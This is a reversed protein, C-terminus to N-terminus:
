SCFCIPKDDHGIPRYVPSKPSVAPMIGFDVTRWQSNGTLQWLLRAAYFEARLSHVLPSFIEWLCFASKAPNPPKLGIGKLVSLAMLSALLMQIGSTWAPRGRLLPQGLKSHLESCTVLSLIKPVWGPPYFALEQACGLPRAEKGLSSGHTWTKQTGM